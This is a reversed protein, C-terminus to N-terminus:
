PAAALRKALSPFVYAPLFGKLADAGFTLVGWGKGVSRFVNTAGVNGSGTKRIDVGKIRGLLYAILGLILIASLLSMMAETVNKPKVIAHPAAISL